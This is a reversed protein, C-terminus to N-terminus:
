GEIGKSRIAEKGSEFGKNYIRSDSSIKLASSRRKWGSGNTMDEFSNNVEKPVVIMLATCQKELESQIGRVFGLCFTNRVGTATGCEKRAERKAKDSLKVGINYLSYFVESCIKIDEVYGYFTVNGNTLYLRCRFNKALVSALQIKWKQSKGNVICELNDINKETIEEGLEQEEIHFKAMLKQAKLAAAVAENENPNNEALALVKKIKEIIEKKDNM